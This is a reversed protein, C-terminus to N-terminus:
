DKLQLCNRIGDLLSGIREVQANGAEDKKNQELKYTIGRGVKGLWLVFSQSKYRWLWSQARRMFKKEDKTQVSKPSIKSVDLPILLREVEAFYFVKMTTKSEGKKFYFYGVISILFVLIYIILNNEFLQPFLKDLGFFSGM